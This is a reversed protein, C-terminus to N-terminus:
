RSVFAPVHINVNLSKKVSNAILVAASLRDRFIFFEIQDFDNFDLYLDALM